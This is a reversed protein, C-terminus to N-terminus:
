FTIFIVLLNFIRLDKSIINELSLFKAKKGFKSGILLMTNRINWKLIDRKINGIRLTRGRCKLIRGCVLILVLSDTVKNPHVIKGYGGYM